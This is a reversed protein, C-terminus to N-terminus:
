KMYHTKPLTAHRLGDREMGSWLWFGRALHNARTEPVQNVSGEVQDSAEDHFSM